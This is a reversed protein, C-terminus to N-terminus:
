TARRYWCCRSRYRPAFASLHGYVSALNGEHEIEVWNGYGGNPAAGIVTGDAAALVATGPDAALDIGQHM